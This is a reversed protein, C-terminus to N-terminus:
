TTSVRRLGGGGGWEGWGLFVVVVFFFSIKKFFQNLARGEGGGLM